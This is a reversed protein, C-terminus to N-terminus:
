GRGGEGIDEETEPRLLVKKPQQHVQPVGLQREGGTDGEHINRVGQQHRRGGDQEGQFSLCLDAKESSVIQNFFDRVM